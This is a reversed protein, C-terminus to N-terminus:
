GSISQSDYPEFKVTLLERFTWVQETLGAAMGPTRPQWKPQIHPGASESGGRSVAPAFESAAPCLQLVGSLLGGSPTVPGEGQLLEPKQPGPPGCSPLRLRWLSPKRLPPTLRVAKEYFLVQNELLHPAMPCLIRQQPSGIDSGSGEGATVTVNKSARCCSGPGRKPGFSNCM